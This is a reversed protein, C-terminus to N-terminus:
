QKSFLIFDEAGEVGKGNPFIPNEVEITTNNGLLQQRLM